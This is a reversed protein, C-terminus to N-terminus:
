VITVHDGTEDEDGVTWEIEVELSRKIKGRKDEEEVKTELTMISPLPLDIEKAGSKFTVKGQEIRDALQRLFSAIESANRREETEFLIKERGMANVEKLNAKKIRIRLGDHCHLLCSVAVGCIGPIRRNGLEWDQYTRYPTDLLRSMEKMNLGFRKRAKRLEKPTM